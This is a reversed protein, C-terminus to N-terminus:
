MGMTFDRHRFKQKVKPTVTILSTTSESKKLKSESDATLESSNSFMEPDFKTRDAEISNSSNSFDRAELNSVDGDIFIASSDTKSSGDYYLSSVQLILPNVKTELSKFSCTDHQSNKQALSNTSFSDSKLLTPTLPSPQHRLLSSSRRAKKLDISTFSKKPELTRTGPKHENFDQLPSAMTIVAGDESKKYFSLM